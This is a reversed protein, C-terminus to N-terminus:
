LNTSGELNVWSDNRIGGTGKRSTVTVTMPNFKRVIIQLLSRAEPNSIVRWAFGLFFLFRSSAKNLPHRFLVHSTPGMGLGIM